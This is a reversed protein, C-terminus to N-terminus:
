HELHFVLELITGKKKKSRLTLTAGIRQAIKFIDKIGNSGILYADCFFIYNDETLTIEETELKLRMPLGMGNDEIKLLVMSFSDKLLTLSLSAYDHQAYKHMNGLAESIFLMLQYRLNSSLVMTQITPEDLGYVDFVREETNLTKKFISTIQKIFAGLQAEQIFIQGVNCKEIMKQLMIILENDKPHKVKVSDLLITAFNKLFNHVLSFNNDKEEQIEKETALKLAFNEKEKEYRELNLKYALWQKEKQLNSETQRFRLIMLVGMLIIEIAISIQTYDNYYQLIRYRSFDFECVIMLSVSILVPLFAFIFIWNERRHSLRAQGSLIVFAIMILGVLFVINMIDYAFQQPQWIPNPFSTCMMLASYGILGIMIKDFRPMKISLELFRRIVMFYGTMTWAAGLLFAREEFRQHEAWILWYGLGTSAIFYFYVGMVYFFYYFQLRMGSQLWIILAFCSYALLIGSLIGVQYGEEGFTDTRNRYPIVGIYTNTRFGRNDIGIYFTDMAASDLRFPLWCPQNLFTKISYRAAYGGQHLTKGTRDLLTIHRINNNELYFSWATESELNLFIFRLWAISDPAIRMDSSDRHLPQNIKHKVEQFPKVQTDTFITIASKPLTGAKLIFPTQTKCPFCFLLIFGHLLYNKM